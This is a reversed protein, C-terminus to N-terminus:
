RVITYIDITYKFAITIAALSILITLYYLLDPLREYKATVKKRFYDKMQTNRFIFLYLLQLYLAAYVIFWIIVIYKM